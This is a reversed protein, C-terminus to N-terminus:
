ETMGDLNLPDRGWLTVVLRNPLCIIAQGGRDIWGVSSCVGLPCLDRPLPIMRVKGADIELFAEGSELPVSVFRHNDAADLPISMILENDVEVTIYGAAQGSDTNRFIFVLLAVFLLGAIVLYDGKKFTKLFSM